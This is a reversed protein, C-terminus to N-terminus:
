YNWTRSRKMRATLTMKRHAFFLILIEIAVKPALKVEHMVETVDAREKLRSEHNMLQKKALGLVQNLFQSTVAGVPHTRELSIIERFADLM